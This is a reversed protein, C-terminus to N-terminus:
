FKLVSYQMPSTMLLSRFYFRDWFQGQPVGCTVTQYASKFQKLVVQQQRSSLYSKFFELAGSRVGYAELKMLLISHSVTDFAKKIDIFVSVAVNHNHLASLILQSLTVVATSTSRSSVFGHQQPCIIHNVDLFTKLQFAILKEFITNVVSLVSIPRYSSPNNPDGTKFIPVVKAVKLTDPYLSSHIAHNFIRCLPVCFLDINDKIVKAMIGDPGAAKNTPMNAVVSAVEDSTINSFSFENNICRPIDSTVSALPTPQASNQGYTTFFQNFQDATEISLNVPVIQKRKATGTVEGVIKWVQKTDNGQRNVLNTYYLKKSKRMLAVSKNRYYKFQKLYYANTRNNKLKNYYSDKKKLVTLIEETIWPCIAHKYNRRSFKLTSKTIADSVASVFNAFETHVDSHCLNEFHISELLRRVHAYDVRSFVNTHTPCTCDIGSRPLFLFTSCHDAINQNCVGACADMDRNCLIHDIITASQHTIRTPVNIVNKLNFSELLFIYDPCDDKSLDINFDGVIALQNNFSMLPVLISEM